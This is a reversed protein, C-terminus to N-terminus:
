CMARWIPKGDSIWLFDPLDWLEKRVKDLDRDNQARVFRETPSEGGDRDANRGRGLGLAALLRHRLRTDPGHGIERPPTENRSPRSVPQDGLHRSM